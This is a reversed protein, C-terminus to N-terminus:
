ALPYSTEPLSELHKRNHENAFPLGCYNCTAIEPKDTNIYIRPHGEPGGGGECAVVRDHTWRVPQKHILEIAAMSQPQLDFDTQEFRPGTMATARPRQSRSWIETRNPAQKLGRETNEVLGLSDEESKTEPTTESKTVVTKECLRASVAFTRRAAGAAQPLRAASQFRLRSLM